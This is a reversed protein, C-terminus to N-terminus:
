DLQERVGDRPPHPNAQAVGNGLLQETDGGASYATSEDEEAVLQLDLDELARLVRRRRVLPGRLFVLLDLPWWLGLWALLLFIGNGFVAQVSDPITGRTLVYSVSIGIVFLLSGVRLASLGERRQAKLELQTQRLRMECYWEIAEALERPTYAELQDRPVVITLRVGGSVKRPMLELILEEMGSILRGTTIYSGGEVGGALLNLHGPANFLQDFSQLYLTLEVPHHDRSRM